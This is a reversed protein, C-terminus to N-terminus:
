KKKLKSKAKKRVKELQRILSDIAEDIEKDTMLQPSLLKRGESDSAHESLYIHLFPTFPIKGKEPAVEFVDIKTMSM